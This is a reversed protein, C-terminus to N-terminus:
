EKREWPMIFSRCAHKHNTIPPLNEGVVMGKTHYVVDQKDLASYRSYINLENISFIQENLSSCMKTVREDIIAIFRTYEFDYIKYLELKVQNIVFTSEDDIYGSYKDQQNQDKKKNIERRKQRDFIVQYSDDYINPEKGAMYEIVLQQSIQQANYIADADNQEEFTLGKKNPMLLLLILLDDLLPIKRKPKHGMKECQKITSSYVNSCIASLTDFQNSYNEKEFKAYLVLTIIDIIEKYKIKKKNKNKSVIYAVYGNDKVYEENRDLFRKFRSLDSDTANDYLNSIKGKLENELEDKLNNQAKSYNQRYKELVNDVFKWDM